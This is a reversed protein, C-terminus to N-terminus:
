ASRPGGRVNTKLSLEDSEVAFHHALGESAWETDRVMDDCPVRGRAANKEARHPGAPVFHPDIRRACSRSLSLVTDMGSSTNPNGIKLSIAANGDDDLAWKESDGRQAADGCFLSLCIPKM